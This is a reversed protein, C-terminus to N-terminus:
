GKQRMPRVQEATGRLARNESGFAEYHRVLCDRFQSLVHESAIEQRKSHWMAAESYRSYAARDDWLRSLAEKWVSIDVGPEVLIGGPGVAEPLGGRRSALVPIGSAQAETVVRGWAEEWQSPALVLRGRRYIQRIDLMPQHWTVNALSKAKARYRAHDAALEWCEVFEFPIDPREEALRLAIEVGKEPVPNVFIVSRRNTEVRYQGADVIPPVVILDIGLLSKVRAALFRSCALFTLGAQLSPDWDLTEPMADLIFQITPVGAALFSEVLHKPTGAMVVAISPRFRAIIERVASAPAWRRYVPYGAARDAPVRRWSMMKAVARTRFGLIGNAGLAALVACTLGTEALGRCLEDTIRQSGGVAQPLHKLTTAFLVRM